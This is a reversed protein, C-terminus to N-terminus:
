STDRLGQELESNVSEYKNTVSATKDRLLRRWLESWDRRATLTTQGGSIRVKVRLENRANSM